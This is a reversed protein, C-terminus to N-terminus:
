TTKDKPQAAPFRLESPHVNCIAGNWQSGPGFLVDFNASDNHGVIVGPRGNVTVAQGCELDPMGRYAATRKFAATTVPGGVKRAHMDTIKVDPWCDRVDMMYAYKAAGASRHNVTRGTSSDAGAWVLFSSVGTM